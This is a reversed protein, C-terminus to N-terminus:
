LHWDATRREVRKSLLSLPITMMLYFITVLVYIETPNNNTAVIQNATFMLEVVSIVMVLSSNKLLITFENLLQPMVFIFVEPLILRILYQLKTFGLSKAAEIHGSPIAQFGGRIIEACFASTNLALAFAGAVFPSLSIGFFSLGYYILMCLLLFPIGRFLDIYVKSIKSLLPRRNKGLFYISAGITWGLLAGSFTLEITKLAGKALEPVYNMEM